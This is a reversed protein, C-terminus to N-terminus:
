STSCPRLFPATVSAAVTAGNGAARQAAAPDIDFAVLRHGAAILRASMRSGMRGLGIFGLTQENSM